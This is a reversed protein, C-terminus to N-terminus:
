SYKFFIEVGFHRIGNLIYKNSKYRLMIYIKKLIEEIIDATDTNLSSLIKGM